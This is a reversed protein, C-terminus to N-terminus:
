VKKRRAVFAVGFIGSSFLWLAAPVPVPSTAGGLTFTVEQGANMGQTLETTWSVEYSNLLSDFTGDAIIGVRQDVDGHDAILGTLNVRMHGTRTNFFGRPVPGGLVTGPLPGMANPDQNRSSTYLTQVAGGIDTSAIEDIYGALLNENSTVVLDIGGVPLFDADIHAYSVDLYDISVIAAHSPTVSCLLLAITGLIKKM